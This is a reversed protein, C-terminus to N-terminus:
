EASRGVTDILIDILPRRTQSSMGHLVAKLRQATEADTDGVIPKAAATITLEVRRRDQPDPRRSVLGARALRDIMASTAPPKIELVHALHTPTVPALASIFHLAILQLLTMGRGAWVASSAAVMARLRGVLWDVDETTVVAANPAAM